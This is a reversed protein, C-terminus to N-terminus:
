PSEDDVEDELIFLGEKNLERLFDVSDVLQYDDVNEIVELDSLFQRNPQDFYRASILYGAGCAVLVAVAATIWRWTNYRRLHKEVAQLEREATVAVMEMTSQTFTHGAEARPLEDLLDWARQLQQLSQRFTPDQSLRREVRRSEDADLEGDLYAVLVDHDHSPEDLQLNPDNM